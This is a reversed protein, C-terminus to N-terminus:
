LLKPFQSPIPHKSKRRNTSVQEQVSSCVNANPLIIKPQIKPLVITESFGTNKNM